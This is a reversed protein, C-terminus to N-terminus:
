TRLRAGTSVLRVLENFSHVVPKASTDLTVDARAHAEERSGLIRRLDDMPEEHGAMPKLNGCTQARLREDDPSGYKMVHHM